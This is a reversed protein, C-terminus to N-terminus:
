RSWTRRVQASIRAKIKPSTRLADFVVAVAEQLSALAGAVASLPYSAGSEPIFRYGLVDTHKQDALEAFQRELSLQRKRLSLMNIELADDDPRASVMEEMRRVAAHTSRLEAALDLLTTM